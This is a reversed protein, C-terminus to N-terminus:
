ENPKESEALAIYSNIKNIVDEISRARTKRFKTKIKYERQFQELTGDRDLHFRMHRSNEYIKNIWTDRPDLSISIIISASEAGGLASLQAGVVPAKIESKIKAVVVPTDEVSFLPTTSLDRASIRNMGIERSSSKPEYLGKERELRADLSEDKLQQEEFKKSNEEEDRSVAVGLEEMTKELIEKKQYQSKGITNLPGGNKTRFYKYLLENIVVISSEFFPPTTAKIRQWKNFDGDSYYDKWNKNLM